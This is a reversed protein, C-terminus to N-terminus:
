CLTPSPPVAPLPAPDSQVLNQNQELDGALVDVLALSFELTQRKTREIAVALRIRM